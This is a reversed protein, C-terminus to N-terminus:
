AALAQIIGLALDGVVQVNRPDILEAVDFGTNTVTPDGSRTFIVSPVSARM